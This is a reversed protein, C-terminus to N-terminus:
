EADPLQRLQKRMAALETRVQDEPMADLGADLFRVDRQKSPYAGTLNLLMDAAKLKDKATLVRPEYDSNLIDAIVRVATELEALADYVYSDKDALWAYFGPNKLWGLVRSNGAMDALEQATLSALDTTEARERLMVHLRAKARAQTANPTFPTLEIKPNIAGLREGPTSAQAGSDKSSRPPTSPKDDDSM